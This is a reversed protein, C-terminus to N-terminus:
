IYEFVKENAIIREKNHCLVIEPCIPCSGLCLDRKSCNPCSHRFHNRFDEFQPSNWAEEISNNSIDYAWKQKDNDFSCPLMKMDATIYASWRAGECTDISEKSINSTFNLIAPISCSDFGIKFDYDNSDVLRFFHQLRPDHYSLVNKSQGLGVPKHLLFIVANIGKPFKNQELLTIAEEISSNSLVYHINTTVQAKILMQLAKLTYDSRYWSIAVAGCYKKCLEVIHPTFGLGSSTFNPVINSDRCCKLIDEFQEHQDPDGRGGLAIQFTKDKCEEVIKKFNTLTMNPQHITNGSQYCEIGAKLCLGSKGHICHGMIGVDLLEPFSTMFPDVNTDKGNELIGTRAYFGTKTHFMSIFKNQKDVKRILSM